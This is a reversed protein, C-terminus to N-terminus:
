TSKRDLVVVCSSRNHGTRDGRYARGRIFAKSRRRHPFAAARERACSLMHNCYEIKGQTCCCLPASSISFSFRRVRPQNQNDIYSASPGALSGLGDKRVLNEWTRYATQLEQLSTRVKRHYSIMTVLLCSLM